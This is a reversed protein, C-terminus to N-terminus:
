WSIHDDIKLQLFVCQFNCLLFHDTVHFFYQVNKYFNLVFCLLAVSVEM